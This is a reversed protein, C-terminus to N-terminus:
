RHMAALVHEALDGTEEPTAGTNSLTIVTAGDALVRSVRSKSPGNSGSHWIVRQRDGALDLERV